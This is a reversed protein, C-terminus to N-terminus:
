YFEYISKKSEAVDELKTKQIGERTKTNKIDKIDKINKITQYDLKM